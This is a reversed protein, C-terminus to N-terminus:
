ARNIKKVKIVDLGIAIVLVIGQIMDQTYSSVNLLTMGNTLIGVLLTGLLVGFVKGKGGTISVGGIVVAIIAQFEWGSGGTPQGSDLRSTLIIASVASLFGGILYTVARIRKVKIGSLYAAESNGGSAYVFRGFKTKQSIFHGIIYTVIMFIIPWPIPGLYGRGIFHVSKPLGSIPYGGTLVYTFGRAVSMMGLSAILAPIELYSILTGNICGLILGSTLAFIGAVLPNIGFHVISGSFIIGCLGVIAGVSIDIGGAVMIFFMGVALIGVMSVQRFINLLNNVSLFVDSTITLFICLALVAYILVYESMFSRINNILGNSSGPKVDRREALDKQIIM